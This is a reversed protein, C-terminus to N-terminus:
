FLGDFEGNTVDYDGPVFTLEVQLVNGLYSIINNKIGCDVAIVCIRPAASAASQIRRREPSEQAIQVSSPQCIETRSVDAVPHRQEPRRLGTQQSETASLTENNMSGRTLTQIAFELDHATPELNQELM